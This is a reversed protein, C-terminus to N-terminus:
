LFSKGIWFNSADGFGNRYETWNRNFDTRGDVRQQIVKFHEDNLQTLSRVTWGGGDTVLDCTVNTACLSSSLCGSRYVTYVGNQAGPSV